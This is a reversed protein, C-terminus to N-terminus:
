DVHSSRSKENRVNSRDESQKLMVLLAGLLVATGGVCQAPTLRDGILLASATITVLPEIMSLISAKTSGIIRLGYFFAVMAIITPFLIIGGIALWAQTHFHLQLQNTSLSVTALSLATFLTVSASTVVSPVSKVVRNSLVIYISYLVASVVGLIVGIPSVDAFSTGLVLVLGAMALVLSLVIRRTLREKDVVASLVAVFVPYSYLLLAALSPSIYQVATFFTFSMAAYLVGGLIFMALLQRLTLSIKTRSVVLFLWFLLAALAFRITLLGLVSAGDRYAYVALISMIGYCAASILVLAVGLISRNM